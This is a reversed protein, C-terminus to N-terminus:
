RGPARHTGPIPVDDPWGRRRLRSATNDVWRHDSPTLSIQMIPGGDAPYVVWKGKGRACRWGPVGNIAAVMDAVLRKDSAGM